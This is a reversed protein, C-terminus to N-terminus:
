SARAHNSEKKASEREDHAAGVSEAGGLEARLWEWADHAAAQEAQKKSRGEGRGRVRGDLSVTAFFQKEHEPGEDRVTYKPRREYRGATLEQLRNKYEQEGPSEAAEVIRPELWGIVLKSVPEFGGDLYVAAIVAEVADALLSPKGRGGSSEEGKDLLLFAGLGIEDGVAALVDANVVSARIRALEGEPLDPFHDYVFETVALGLVSDGLFELRENSELEPREARYSRHVMSKRLLSDDEFRWGLIVELEDVHVADSM